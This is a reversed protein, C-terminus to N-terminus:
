QIWSDHQLSLPVTMKFEIERYLIGRIYNKVFEQLLLAHLLIWHNLYLQELM